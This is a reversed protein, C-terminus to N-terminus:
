YAFARKVIQSISTSTSALTNGLNKALNKVITEFNALIDDKCDVFYIPVNYLM